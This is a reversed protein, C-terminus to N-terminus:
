KLNLIKQNEFKKVISTTRKISSTVEASNSQQKNLWDFTKKKEVYEMLNDEYIWRLM